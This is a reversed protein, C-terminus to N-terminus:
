RKKRKKLTRELRFELIKKRLTNRNIGLMEAAKIQNGETKELVIEILPREVEQVFRRHLNKGEKSEPSKLLREIGIRISQNLVDPDSDSLQPFDQPQLELDSSLILSRKIANELERVNGPWSYETLMKLAEQSIKKPPVNLERSYKGIFFDILDPLDEKRERLPPIYISVVNLRYFLDARFRNEQTLQKLNANTAAILRSELPVSSRKGLPEIQKQELARLLKGQLEYPMEGIEDLFLTGQSAQEFRGIKRETAGTFAGKEHGFLESELLNNPIAAMNIAIFPKESRSSYSHIARAVLEKGTGSEGEILLTVPSDAIKGITKFVEKMARSRGILTPTKEERGSLKERLEQVEQALSWSEFAKKTLVEIEGIDFPKTLYDFAGQQMAEIANQMTDQATMVIVKSTPSISQLEQILQLGPRDPLRIDLLLVAYPLSRHKEIGEKASAATDVAYGARELSKQLVWRLNPDDDVILLRNM